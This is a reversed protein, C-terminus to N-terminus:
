PAAAGDHYKKSIRNFILSETFFESSPREANQAPTSPNAKM